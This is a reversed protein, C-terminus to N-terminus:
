FLGQYLNAKIIVTIFGHRSICVKWVITQGKSMHRWWSEIRQNATSTGYWYHDSWVSDPNLEQHLQCHANAMMHTETGRDSRITYPLTGHESLHDLYSRLVAIATRTSIGVHIWTIYRSYADIGAYVEFGYLTLKHHGDVSIVRNPGAVRYDGRPIKQRAFMRSAVGDPDLERVLEFMRDRAVPVGLQKLRTYALRRGYLASQGRLEEELVARIHENHLLIQSTDYRRRM